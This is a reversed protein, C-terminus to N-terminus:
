LTRSFTLVFSNARTPADLGLGSTLRPRYGKDPERGALDLHPARVPLHGLNITGDEGTSPARQSARWSM